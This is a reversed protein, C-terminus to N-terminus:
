NNVSVSKRFIERYDFCSEIVYNASNTRLEIRDDVTSISNGNCDSITLHRVSEPSPDWSITMMKRDDEVVYDSMTVFEGSFAEDTMGDPGLGPLLFNDLKNKKLQVFHYKLYMRLTDKDSPIFGKGKAELIAENTPLFVVADTLGAMSNILGGSANGIEAQQMLKRFQTFETKASTAAFGGNRSPVPRGTQIVLGNSAEITRRVPIEEDLADYLVKDKVYFYTKNDKAVFYRQDAINDMDPLRGYMFESMLMDSINTETLNKGAKKFSYSGRTVSSVGSIYGEANLDIDDQIFLTFSNNEDVTQQYMNKVNFARSYFDFDPERFITETMHTFVSPVLIRDTGFIIGNACFHPEVCDSVLQYKEGNPGIVPAGDLESPYIIEQSGYIHSKLFHYIANDPIVDLFYKAEYTGLAKFYEKLYPELVEDKPFFCLNTYKTDNVFVAGNENHYTWESAIEPIESNKSPATWHYFLYLSDGNPSYNKTLSADYTYTNIRDFMAKIISYDSMNDGSLMEYVTPLPELVRDVTYLFGNVAQLGMERIRANGSYLANDSGAWDVDPFYKKYDAEPDAIGRTKFLKSSFVPLFKERSYLNVNRGTRPDTFLKVPAKGYTKYKYSSGDGGDTSRDDSSQSFALFDKPEYAFQILHYGVITKLEDEPIDSIESTSYNDRLFKDFAADDPAFVTVLGGGDVLKDYGSLHIAEIFRGYQGKDELLQMISLGSSGQAFDRDKNCSVTLVTALILSFLLQFKNM